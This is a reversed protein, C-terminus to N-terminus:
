LTRFTWHMQAAMCSEMLSYFIWNVTKENKKADAWKVDAYTSYHKCSYVKVWYNWNYSIVQEAPVAVGISYRIGFFWYRFVFFFFQYRDHAYQLNFTWHIINSIHAYHTRIGVGGCCCFSRIRQLYIGKWPLQIKESPSITYFECQTFLNFNLDRRGSLDIEQDGSTTITVSGMKYVAVCGCVCVAICHRAGGWDALHIEFSSFKWRSSTLPMRTGTGTDLNCISFM